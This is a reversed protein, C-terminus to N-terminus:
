RVNFDEQIRTGNNGCRDEVSLTITDVLQLIAIKLNFTAGKLNQQGAREEGEVAPPLPLFSHSSPDGSEVAFSTPLVLRTLGQFDESPSTKLILHTTLNRHKDM